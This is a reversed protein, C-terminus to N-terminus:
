AEYEAAPRLAEASPALLQRLRAMEVATAAAEEGKHGAKGGARALAQEATDCTLVGFAVPVGTDLSVRAIGHAAGGAVYDFHATEGRIVAGLCVVADFAGSEAAWKAAAPLEFAGPVWAVVIDDEYVGAERLKRIAGEVLKETVFTNWRSALVCIRLGSGELSGHLERVM